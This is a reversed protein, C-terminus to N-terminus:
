NVKHQVNSRKKALFYDQEVQRLKSREVAAAKREMREQRLRDHLFMKMHRIHSSKM